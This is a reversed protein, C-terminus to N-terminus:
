NKLPEKLEYYEVFTKGTAVAIDHEMVAGKSDQWGELMSIHTCGLLKPLLFNMYEQWTPERHKLAKLKEGDVAPNVVLYGMSKLKMERDKFKAKYDPDGSIPGAIYVKM